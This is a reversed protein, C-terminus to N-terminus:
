SNRSYAYIEDIVKAYKETIQKRKLKLTQSLEGTQASWEDTVLRFRKIQEAASLNKNVHNVEKQFIENVEPILILESNDSFKIERNMCWKHLQPFNPSILASTFKENEGIVIAQDILICEKLKNEVM